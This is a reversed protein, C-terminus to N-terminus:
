LFGTLFNKKYENYTIKGKHNIFKGIYNLNDMNDSVALEDGSLIEIRLDPREYFFDDPEFDSFDIKRSYIENMLAKKADDLASEAMYINNTLEIFKKNMFNGGLLVAM